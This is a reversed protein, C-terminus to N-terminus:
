EFEEYLCSEGHELLKKWKRREELVSPKPEEVPFAWDYKKGNIMMRLVRRRSM